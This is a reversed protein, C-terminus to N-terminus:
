ARAGFVNTQNEPSESFNILLQDRTVRAAMSNLWFAYGDADPANQNTDTSISSSREM